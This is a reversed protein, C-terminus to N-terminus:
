RRPATGEEALVTLRLVTGGELTYALTYFGPALTSRGGPLARDVVDTLQREPLQIRTKRYHPLEAPFAHWRSTQGPQLPGLDVDTGRQPWGQWVHEFVTTSDNRVRLWVKGGHRPPQAQVSGTALASALGAATGALVSALSRALAHRRMM